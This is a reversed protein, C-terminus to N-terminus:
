SSFYDEPIKYLDKLYLISLEMNKTDIHISYAM